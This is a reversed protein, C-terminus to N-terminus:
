VGIKKKALEKKPRGNKRKKADSFDLVIFSNGIKQAKIRGDKILAFVRSKSIRLKAACEVVSYIKNEQM